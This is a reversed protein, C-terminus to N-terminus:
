LTPPFYSRHEELLVGIADMRELLALRQRRGYATPDWRAPDEFDHVPANHLSALRRLPYTSNALALPVFAPPMFAIAADPRANALYRALRRGFGRNRLQHVARDFPFFRPAGKITLIRLGDVLRVALVTLWGPSGRAYRINRVKVDAPLDYFPRGARREHSVIEVDHGRSALGAALDVLVREAGGSRQALREILIAVKVSAGESSRM